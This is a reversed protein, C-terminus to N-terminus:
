KTQLMSKKALKSIDSQLQARAQSVHWRSTGESMELMDSIEKHSFGDIAFLNFVRCSMEPLKKMLTEFEESEMEHLYENVVNEDTEPFDDKLIETSKRNKNKRHDDIVINILIRRVWLEFPVNDKRDNLHNLIKLFGINMKAEADQRNREYRTCVSMMLSFLAKYLEYQAKPEERICRAILEKEVLTAPCLLTQIRHM